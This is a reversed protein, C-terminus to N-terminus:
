GDGELQARLEVPTLLEIDRDHLWTRLNRDDLLDRDRTVIAEARGAVAAAVVPADAPDRLQVDVDVDPLTPALILLLDEVDQSTFGYRSLNPRRLVDALEEVLEWTAVVEIQGRRVAELVHAPASRRAILASVWVNTDVVVRLERV